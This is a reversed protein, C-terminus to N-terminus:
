CIAELKRRIRHIRSRFTSTTALGEAHLYLIRWEEPTLVGAHDWLWECATYRALTGDQIEPVQDLGCEQPQRCRIKWQRYVWWRMSRRLYRQRKGPDQPAKDLVCLAHLYAEQRYDEQDWGRRDSIGRPIARKSTSVALQQIDM